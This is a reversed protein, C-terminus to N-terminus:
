LEFAKCSEVKIEGLGGDIDLYNEGAGYVRDTEIKQGDLTVSGIGKSMDIKYEDKSNILKINIAGVGLDIKTNGILKGKFNFEGIGLDAKLNNIECSNLETKGLEEM